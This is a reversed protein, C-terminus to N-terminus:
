YLKIYEKYFKVANAISQYPFHEDIGHYNLNEKTQLLASFRFVQNSVQTFYRSDTGGLVLTPVVVVEQQYVNKLAKSITEYGRGETSSELSVFEKAITRLEVGEPLLKRLYEEIDETKDGPLIRTNIVASAREPLINSQKSGFAMTVANTTHLMADIAPDNKALKILEEWHEEPNEYIEKKEKDQLIAEAQLQKKVLETLKYPLPNEEIAVIGRAIDGLGSGRGPKMAHGGETEKVIEYDAYAKENLAVNAVYLKKGDQEVVSVGGGEDFVAGLRIDHEKFYDVAKGAGKDEIGQLEEDDAFGLYIDYDPWFGEKLLEEVTELISVLVSKCDSAGRGWVYGNEIVGGFPPYKWLSAEGAPVVDQHALLLVPLKDSGTGKWKYLLYAQGLVQKELKASLLPWTKEIYNHLKEFQTLEVKTKDSYSVTACQVLGSLHEAFIKSM